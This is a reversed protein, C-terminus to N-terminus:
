LTQAVGALAPDYQHDSSTRFSYKADVLYHSAFHNINCIKGSDRKRKTKHTKNIVWGPHKWNERDGHKSVWRPTEQKKKRSTLKDM